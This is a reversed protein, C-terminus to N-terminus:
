CTATTTKKPFSFSTAIKVVRQRQYKYEHVTMVENQSELKKEPIRCKQRLSKFVANQQQEVAIRGRQSREVVNTVVTPVAAQIFLYTLTVAALRVAPLSTNRRQVTIVKTSRGDFPLGISGFDFRPQLQRMVPRIGKAM